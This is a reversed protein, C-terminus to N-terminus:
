VKRKKKPVSLMHKHIRKMVNTTSAVTMCKLWKFVNKDKVVSYYNINGTDLIVCIADPILRSFTSVM